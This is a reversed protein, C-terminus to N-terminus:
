LTPRSVKEIEHNQTSTEVVQIAEKHNDERLMASELPYKLTMYRAGEDNLKCQESEHM